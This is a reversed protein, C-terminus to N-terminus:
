GGVEALCCGCERRYLSNAPTGSKIQARSQGTGHCRSPLLPFDMPDSSTLPIPAYPPDIPPFRPSRQPHVERPIACAAPTRPAAIAHPQQFRQLGCRRARWLLAGSTPCRTRVRGCRIPCGGRRRCLPRRRAGRVGRVLDLGASIRDAVGLRKEHEAVGFPRRKGDACRLLVFQPRDDQHTERIAPLPEKTWNGWGPPSCRGSGSPRLTHLVLVAGGRACTWASGSAETGRALESGPPNRPVCM